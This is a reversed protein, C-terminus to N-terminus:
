QRGLRTHGRASTRTTPLRFWSFGQLHRPPRARLRDLLREVEVPSSVLESASTYSTLLPEESEVAIAGSLDSRSVRSGYTPLAVRFPRQATRAFSVVWGMALDADFLGETPRQVAHVQLVSSDVSLLVETLHPSHLWAPLVTVSTYVDPIAQRLSRLFTAYEPLRSAAADHDIELSVVHGALRWKRVLKLIQPALEHPRWDALQGEIRIVATVPRGLQALWTWNVGHEQIEGPSSSSAGLVRWGAINDRSKSIAQYVSPTWVRQWVYADHYLQIAPHPTSRSLAFLSGILLGVWFRMIAAPTERPVAWACNKSGVM